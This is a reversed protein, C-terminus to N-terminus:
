KVDYTWVGRFCKYTMLATNTVIKRMCYSFVWMGYVPSKLMLIVFTPALTWEIRLCRFESNLAGIFTDGINVTHLYFKTSKKKKTKNVKCGHYGLSLFSISNLTNPHEKTLKGELLIVSKGPNKKRWTGRPRAGHEWGELCPNASTGSWNASNETRCIRHWSWPPWM